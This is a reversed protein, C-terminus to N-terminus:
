GAHSDEGTSDQASSAERKAWWQRFTQEPMPMMDRTQTWGSLMGPLHEIVGDKSEFLKQGIRGLKQALSLRSANAFLFAATEM